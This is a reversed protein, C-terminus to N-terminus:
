FSNNLQAPFFASSQIFTRLAPREEDDIKGNGNKDFNTIMTQILAARRPQAVIRDVLLDTAQDKLAKRLVAMEPEHVAVVHLSISGMEDTSKPGWKVRVPPSTPNKPNAASNDYHLEVDLRTGKPLPIRNQYAYQEQWAFDWDPIKLLTKVEGGPLTAMMTMVKGLYHAHAGVAFAEVDVPVTFSSKVVYNSDGAPIDIGSMEGFVPPLQIGVFTQQPPRSAFYIGITSIEEEEKGTPHFHTQVVLDASKPYSYALGDPLARVNSGLAWGGVPKFGRSGPDAKFGPEPDAEQLKRAAGTTDLYFLAHHVAARAGPRFEIAKVWKDETLNLPFVFVRYIDKGDAYLKYPRDMKVILDPKGLQWGEPFEPVKPCKKSDGEPMGAEVWATLTKIQSESLVRPHLFDVHGLEAHWPPMFKDGTVRVIQKGHKSVDKYTLLPFPAAEGPRHCSACNQYVISAVEGAFTPPTARTREKPTAAGMASSACFGAALLM